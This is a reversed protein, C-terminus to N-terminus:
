KLHRTLLPKILNNKVLHSLLWKQLTWYKSINYQQNKKYSEKKYEILIRQFNSYSTLTLIWALEYYCRLSDVLM